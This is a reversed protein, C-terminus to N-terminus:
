ADPFAHQRFRKLRLGVHQTFSASACRYLMEDGQVLEVVAGKANTLNEAVDVIRQMFADLDFEAETILSQIELVGQLLWELRNARSNSSLELLDEEPSPVTHESSM